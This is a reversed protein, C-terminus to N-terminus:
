VMQPSDKSTLAKTLPVFVDDSDQYSVFWRPIGSQTRLLYNYEEAPLNLTYDLFNKFYQAQDHERDYFECRALDHGLVSMGGRDILQQLQRPDSWHTQLIQGNNHLYGDWHCYVQGIRGDAYELAITSRTAM